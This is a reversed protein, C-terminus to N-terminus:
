RNAWEGPFRLGLRVAVYLILLGTLIRLYSDKFKMSGLNSGILGDLAVAPFLPWHAALTQETAAGGSKMTQNAEHAGAPLCKPITM